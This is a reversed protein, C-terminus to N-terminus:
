LAALAAITALAAAILQAPRRLVLFPVALGASAKIGAALTAVVVGASERAGVWLLVGAVTLLVVLAENHAGGVVHVLVLPNLGVFAAAVRPERGLLRAGKWVLGVIGLSCAAALAKLTWLAGALGLPALSYTLLTFLPGYVSVADKSGAYGFVSDGPIDLPSPTYPNLSHKVGM